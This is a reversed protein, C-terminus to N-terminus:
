PPHAQSGTFSPKKLILERNSIIKKLIKTVKVQKELSSFIDSYQVDEIDVGITTKKCLLLHPQNDEESCILCALNPEYQTKYNAKCKYSRTRLLFLLQKESLTLETSTLYTQMESNVRLGDSKSHKNKLTLLYKQAAENIKSSLFKKFQSKKMLLLDKEDLSINLYELDKKIQLCWDNKVPSLQQARLVQKVLESDPKHIIEWYYMLRRALIIFRLPLTNTEIYYAETATTSVSNIIKKMLIRDCLELQEIHKDTLGYVSEISCLIGNILMSNRFMMAMEFYHVGFSVEKLMSIILNGIGIGKNYRETISKDIKADSTLIEGLYKEQNATKMDKGNVSLTPCCSKNKGIHMQFCKKHSLQLQKGEVKAQITANMKVSDTSCESVTLIDDVFSLPPISTCKKYKYLVKHTNDLTEKGITDITVSCKLGALVTGQMEINSLNTRNTKSGWPTKVAVNCNENSKAITIFNDNNVGANYLDISTNTYELKDFCKYADYIGIDIDKNEGPNHIADNIIANVVFLHDRINRKKRAGINSCSMNGDVTDYVDNYIMKDLISRIKTVNFVGRDNDLDTKDNKKKWFSSINAPQFISPYTQKRKVLNFLKLLSIKLAKGGYKFLEYVHENEDRAKNNKFSKLAKVM